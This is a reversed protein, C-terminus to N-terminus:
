GTNHRYQLKQDVPCTEEHAEVSWYPPPHQNRPRPLKLSPWGALEGRAGCPHARWRQQALEGKCCHALYLALERAKVGEPYAIGGPGDPRDRSHQGSLTCPFARGLAAIPTPCSPSCNEQWYSRLLIDEGRNVAPSPFIPGPGWRLRSTLIIELHSDRVQSSCITDKEELIKMTKYNKRVKTLAWLLHHKWFSGWERM